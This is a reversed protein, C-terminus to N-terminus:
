GVIRVCEDYLNGGDGIDTLRAETIANACASRDYPGGKPMLAIDKRQRDDHRLRVRLKGHASELSCEAGDKIGNASDPHVTLEFPTEPPAVWQSCQSDRSSHTMLRLTYESPPEAVPTPATTLLNVHGTKTPFRQGEFIVRPTLPNPMVGKELEEICVGQAAAEKTIWRRKWEDSSGALKEGFGLREAM